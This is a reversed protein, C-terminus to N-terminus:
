LSSLKGACFVFLHIGSYGFLLLFQTGLSRCILRRKASSACTKCLHAINLLWAEAAEM